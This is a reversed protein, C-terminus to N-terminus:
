YTSPIWTSPPMSQMGLFAVYPAKPDLFERCHLLTNLTYITGASHTVFSVHKADLKQLVAPVSELWVKMRISIDVPSSGGM